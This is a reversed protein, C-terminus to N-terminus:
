GAVEQPSEVVAVGRERLSKLANARAAATGAAVAPEVVTVRYGRNLAGQITSSVCQDAFVGTVVLHDIQLERLRKDLRPNTFADPAEKEFTPAEALIVRPDPDAGATGKVAASNRFLNGLHDTPSFANVVRVIPRGERQARVILANVSAVLEEVQDEAVPMRGEPELFDRQLDLLMLGPTPEAYPEIDPGDTAQCGLSGLGIFLIIGATTRRM